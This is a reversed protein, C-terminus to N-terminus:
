RGFFTFLFLFTLGLAMGMYVPVRWPMIDDVGVLVLAVRVAVTAVVGAFLCILRSSFFSGFMAISPAAAFAPCTGLVLVFTLYALQGRSHGFSRRDLLRSEPLDGEIRSETADDIM